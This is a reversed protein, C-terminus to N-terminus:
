AANLSQTRYQVPSLGKLKIRSREHNCSAIGLKIDISFEQLKYKM